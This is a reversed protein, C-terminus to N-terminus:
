RDEATDVACEDVFISDEEILYNKLDVEDSNDSENQIKGM